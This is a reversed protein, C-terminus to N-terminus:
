FRRSYALSVLNVDDFRSYDLRIGDNDTFGYEVGGGFIFDDGSSSESQSDTFGQASATVDIGLSATGYGVRAFIDLDDSVPLIGRAFGAFYNKIKVEGDVNVDIGQVTVTDSLDEGSLGFGGEGEIALYDNLRYGARGTIATFSVSDGVIANLDPDGTAVDVDLLSAGINIYFGENDDAHATMAGLVSLSFAAAILTIKKM